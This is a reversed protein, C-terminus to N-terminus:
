TKGGILRYQGKLESILVTVTCRTYPVHVIVADCQRTVAM